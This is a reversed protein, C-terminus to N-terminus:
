RMVQAMKQLADHKREKEVAGILISEKDVKKYKGLSDNLKNIDSKQMCNENGLSNILRELRSGQIKLTNKINTDDSWVLDITENIAM